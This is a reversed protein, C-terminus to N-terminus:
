QLPAARFLERKSSFAPDFQWTATRAQISGARANGRLHECLGVLNDRGHAQDEVTLVRM